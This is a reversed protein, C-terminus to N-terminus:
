LSVNIEFGSTERGPIKNFSQIKMTRFYEELRDAFVVVSSADSTEGKIRYTGAELSILTLKM